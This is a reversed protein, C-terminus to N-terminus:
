RTSKRQKLEAYYTTLKNRLDASIKARGHEFNNIISRSVGVEVAAEHQTVGALRRVEGLASNCPPVTPKRQNTRSTQPTIFRLNGPEYHGDNNIRDLRLVRDNWGPLTMLHELMDQRTAFKMLIGREGYWKYFGDEPDNCRLFARCVRHFLRSKAKYCECCLEKEKRLTGRDTWKEVNNDCFLCKRLVVPM